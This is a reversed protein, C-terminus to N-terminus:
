RSKRARLKPVILNLHLPAYVHQATSMMIVIIMMIAIIFCVSVWLQQVIPLDRALERETGGERQTQYLHIM